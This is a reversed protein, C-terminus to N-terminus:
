FPAAAGNYMDLVVPGIIVLAAVGAMSVIVAILAYEIATAGRENRCFRTLHDRM